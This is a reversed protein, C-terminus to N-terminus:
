LIIISAHIIKPTKKIILQQTGSESKRIKGGPTLLKSTIMRSIGVM